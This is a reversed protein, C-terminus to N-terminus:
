KWKKSQKIKKRREEEQKLRRITELRSRSITKEM